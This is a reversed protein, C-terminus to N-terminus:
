GIYVNNASVSESTSLWAGFTIPSTWSITWVIKNVAQVQVRYILEYFPIKVKTETLCDKVAQIFDAQLTNCNSSIKIGGCSNAITLHALTGSPVPTGPAFPVCYTAVLASESPNDPVVYTTGVTCWYEWLATGFQEPADSVGNFTRLFTEIITPNGTTPVTYIWEGQMAYSHYQSAFVGPFNVRALNPDAIVESLSAMMAACPKIPELMM